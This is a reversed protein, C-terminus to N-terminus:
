RFRPLGIPKKLVKARAETSQPSSFRETHQARDADEVRALM